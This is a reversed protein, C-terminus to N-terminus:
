HSIMPSLRFYRRREYLNHRIQTNSAISVKSVLIWTIKWLAPTQHKSQKEFGKEARTLICHKSILHQKKQVLGVGVSVSRKKGDKESSEPSILFSALTQAGRNM